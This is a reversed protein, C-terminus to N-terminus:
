RLHAVSLLWRSCMKSPVHKKKESIGERFSVDWGQFHITKSSKRTKKKPIDGKWHRKRNQPRFIEELLKINNHEVTWNVAFWRGSSFLATLIRTFHVYSSCPCNSSTNGIQIIVMKWPWTVKGTCRYRLLNFLWWNKWNPSQNWDPNRLAPIVQDNWGVQSSKEHQLPPWFSGLQM